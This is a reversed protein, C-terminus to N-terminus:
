LHLMMIFQNTSFLFEALVSHIFVNKLYFLLMYQWSVSTDLDTSM